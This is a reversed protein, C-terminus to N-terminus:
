VMQVGASQLCEYLARRLRAQQQPTTPKGATQVRLAFEVAGAPFATVVFVADGLGVQAAAQKAAAEVKSLDTGVAVRAVVSLADGMTVMVSQALKVNPVIVRSGDLGNLRTNRWGIHEVFGEQGDLRVFNGIVVPRDVVVWFGAFLNALTDQLGVAVAIGAIGLSTILPGIQYGLIDLVLLFALAWVAVSVFKSLTGLAAGGHDDTLSSWWRVARRLLRVLGMSGILTAFVQSWKRVEDHATASMSLVQVAQYLGILLITLTITPRFVGPLTRSPDIQREAGIRRAAGSLLTNVILAIVVTGAIIIGCTGLALLTERGIRM